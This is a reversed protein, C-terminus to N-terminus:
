GLLTSDIKRNLEEWDTSYNASWYAIFQEKTMRMSIPQDSEGFDKITRLNRWNKIGALYESDYFKDGRKIFAHTEHSWLQVGDFLRSAIWAWKFCDGFNIEIPHAITPFFISQIISPNFQIKM